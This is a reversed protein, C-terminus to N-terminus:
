ETGNTWMPWAIHSRAVSPALELEHKVIRRRAALKTEMTELAIHRLKSRREPECAGGAGLDIALSCM